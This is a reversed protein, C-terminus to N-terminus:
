STGEGFEYQLRAWPSINPESATGGGCSKGEFEAHFECVRKESGSEDGGKDDRQGCL